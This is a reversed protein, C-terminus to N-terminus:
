DLVGLALPSNCTTYTSFGIELLYNMVPKNEFMVEMYKAGMILAMVVKHTQCVLWGDDIKHTNAKIIASHLVVKDNVVSQERSAHGLNVIM